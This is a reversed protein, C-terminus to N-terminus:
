SLHYKKKIETLTYRKKGRSEREAIEFRIHDEIDEKIEEWARYTNWDLVVYRPEGKERVIAPKKNKLAGTLARMKTMIM